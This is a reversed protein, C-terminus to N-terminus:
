TSPQPSAPLNSNWTDDVCKWSGDTQKKWVELLKGQDASPKGKDDKFSLEYVGVLYAMDGSRAVEVKTPRWSVKLGPLALLEAVSKRASAKGNAMADNPPLIVANDAYFALWADVQVTGAAKVWQADIERIAAEDAAVDVAPKVAVIHEALAAWRGNRKIYTATLRYTQTYPEGNDTGRITDSETVVATDRAIRIKQDTLDQSLIKDTGDGIQKIFAEKGIPKGAGFTAVFRDDLIRRLATADRAIEAATWEQELARIQREASANQAESDQADGAQSGSAFVTGCLMGILWKNM